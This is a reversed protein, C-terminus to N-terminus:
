AADGIWNRLITAAADPDEKVLEQLEQKLNPGSMEFRRRLMKEPQDDEEEEHEPEVHLRPQAFAEAANFASPAPQAAATSKVMSRLMVLCFAGVGIMALSRWNDAFWAGAQAAFSPPPIEEGKLDDYPTVTIHPYPNTGTPFPPLLNRAIEEIKTTLQGKIKELEAPDPEKPTQGAPTPNLQRWTKLVHSMPFQIAATVYTPVLRAKKKQTVTHGPLNSVESRSENSQSQPAAASATVTLPKNGNVDNSVAGPRGGPERSTTSTDKQYETSSLTIPKPDITVQQTTDELEPDLQV